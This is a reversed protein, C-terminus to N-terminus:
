PEKTVPIRRESVAGADARARPDVKPPPSVKMGLAADARRQDIRNVTGSDTLTLVTVADSVCWNQPSVANAMSSRAWLLTDARYILPAVSSVIRVCRSGAAPVPPRVPSGDDIRYAILAGRVQAGRARIKVAEMGTCTMTGGQCAATVKASDPGIDPPAQAGAAYAAVICLVGATVLVANGMRM